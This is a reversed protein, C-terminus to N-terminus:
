DSGDSFTDSTLVSSRPKGAAMGRWYARYNDGAADVAARASQLTDSAQQIHTQISRKNDYANRYTVLVHIRGEAASMAARGWEIALEFRKMRVEPSNRVKTPKNTRNEYEKFATLRPGIMDVLHKYRDFAEVLERPWPVQKRYTNPDITEAWTILSAITSEHNRVEYVMQRVVDHLNNLPRLVINEPDSEEYPGLSVNSHIRRPPKPM